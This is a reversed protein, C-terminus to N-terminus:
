LSTLSLKKQFNNNYCLSPRKKTGNTSPPGEIIESNNKLTLSDASNSDFSSKKIIESEMGIPMGEIDVDTFDATAAPRQPIIDARPNTAVASLVSNDNDDTTLGNRAHYMNEKLQLCNIYITEIDHKIIRNTIMSLYKYWNCITVLRERCFMCILEHSSNKEDEFFFQYWLMTSDHNHYKLSCLACEPEIDQLMLTKFGEATAKQIVVTNNKLGNLLKRKSFFGMYSGSLDLCQVIEELECQKVLKTNYIRDYSEKLNENFNIYTQDNTHFVLPKVMAGMITDEEIEEEDEEVMEPIEEQYNFAPDGGNNNITMNTDIVLTRQEPKEEGNVAVANIESSENNGEVAEVETAGQTFNNMTVIGDNNIISSEEVEEKIITSQEYGLSVDSLQDNTLATSAKRDLGDLIKNSSMSKSFSENSIASYESFCRSVNPDQYSASGPTVVNPTLPSIGTLRNLKKRKMHDIHKNLREIENKLSASEDVKIEYLSNLEENKRTLSSIKKHMQQNDGNLINIQNNRIESENKFQKLEDNLENIKEKLAMNEESVERLHKRENEIQNIAQELEKDKQVFINLNNEELNQIKVERDEVDNHLSNIISKLRNIEVLAENKEEKEKQFRSRSDNEIQRLVEREEDVSKKMNKVYTSAKEKENKILQDSFKKIEDIDDQNQKRLRELRQETAEELRAIYDNSNTIKKDTEQKIIKCQEKFFLVKGILEEKSLSTYDTDDDEIPVIQSPDSNSRVLLSKNAEESLPISDDVSPKPLPIEVPASEKFYDDQSQEITTQEVLENKVIENDINEIPQEIPQEIPEEAPQEIPEEIPQEIPQEVPEEISEEVPQEIQQEIPQEVSEEISEEVPQEIQQIPEEVIVEENSDNLQIVEEEIVEDFEEDKEGNNNDEVINEEQILENIDNTEPAPIKDEVEEEEDNIKVTEIKEEEVEVPAEVMNTTENNNTTAEIAATNEIESM